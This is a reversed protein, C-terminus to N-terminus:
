KKKDEGSAKTILGHGPEASVSGGSLIVTKDPDGARAFSLKGDESGSVLAIPLPEHGEQHYLHTHM